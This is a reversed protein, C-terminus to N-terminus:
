ATWFEDTPAPTVTRPFNGTRLDAVTLDIVALNEAKIMVQMEIESGWWCECGWVVDGNDLVIKPNTKGLDHLMGTLSGDGEDPPVEDGVYVGYGLLYIVGEGKSAAAGVRIGAVPKSM